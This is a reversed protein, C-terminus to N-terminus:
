KYKYGKHSCYHCAPHVEKKQDNERGRWDEFALQNWKYVRLIPPREPRRFRREDVQVDEGNCRIRCCLFSCLLGEKRLLDFAMAVHNSFLQTALGVTMRQWITRSFTHWPWSMRLGWVLNRPTNTFASTFDITFPKARLSLLLSFCNSDNEKLFLLFDSNLQVIKHHLLHNRTCKILHAVDIFAYIKISPELSHPIWNNAGKEGSVGMKQLVSKNNAHGECVMAKVIAGSRHLMVIAKVIIEALTNNDAAGKSAFWAIPQIWKQRFPRFLLVLVHDTLGHKTAAKIDSGFNVVGNWKLMKSDWTLDKKISIEDWMLTGYRLHRPLKSLVKSINELARENFGFGCDSSSLLRQLNSESPLPLLKNDRLNRYSKPSKMSLLLSEILFGPEYRM